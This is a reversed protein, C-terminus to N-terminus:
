TSPIKKEKRKKRRNSSDSIYNTQIQHVEECSININYNNAELGNILKNCRLQENGYWWWLTQLTEARNKSVDNSPM